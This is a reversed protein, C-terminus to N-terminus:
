EENAVDQQAEGFKEQVKGKVRDIKGEAQLSNDGTLGGAADKVRGKVDKGVGKIQNEAGAQNLDKDAM